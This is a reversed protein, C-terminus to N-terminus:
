KTKILDNIIKSPSFTFTLNLDTIEIQLQSLVSLYYVANLKM